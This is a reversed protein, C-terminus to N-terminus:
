LRSREASQGVFRRCHEQRFRIMGDIITEIRLRGLPRNIRRFVEQLAADLSPMVLDADRLASRVEPLYLLTGNTLVAVPIDAMDKIHAIMEGIKSNLTPEGSGSFTIYDIRKTNRIAEELVSSDPYLRLQYNQKM